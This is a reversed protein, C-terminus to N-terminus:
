YSSLVCHGHSFRYETLQEITWAGYKLLAEALYQPLTLKGKVGLNVPKHANKALKAAEREVWRNWTPLDTRFLLVIEAQNQFPCMQCNSPPPVAMGTQAIYQQCALRSMGLEILPYRHVVCRSRYRPIDTRQTVADSAAGCDAFLTLTAPTGISDASSDKPAKNRKVRVEEGAAFGIWSVLKGYFHAYEYYVRHGKSKFGYAQRLWDALFSYCVKIKLNDTCSKPFAVSMITDNREMQALLSPWTRGHYGMDPTILHFEIGHRQCFERVTAVHQYTQRYEDGTDAMIVLLHADPCFQDRFPQSYVYLYLLATSDQGGGFFLVRVPRDRVPRDRVPHDRVPHNLLPRTWAPPPMVSATDNM